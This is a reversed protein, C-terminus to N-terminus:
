GILHPLLMHWPWGLFGSVNCTWLGAETTDSLGDTYRPVRKPVLWIGRSPKCERAELHCHTKSPFLPNALCHAPTSTTETSPLGRPDFSLMSFLCFAVRSSTALYAMAEPHCIRKMVSMSAKTGPICPQGLQSPCMRIDERNTKRCCRNRSGSFLGGVTTDLVNM